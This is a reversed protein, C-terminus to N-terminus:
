PTAPLEIIWHTGKGLGTNLTAKGNFKKVRMRINNLGNGSRTHEDNFGIGDDKAEITTQEKDFSLQLSFHIAESYKAANNIMEKCILYAERRLLMDVQVAEAPKNVFLSYRTESDEFANTMFQQLRNTLHQVTDNTPNNSWVIDSMNDIMQRSTEEMKLALTQAAEPRTTIRKKLVSSMLSISSLTSGIDDHLEQSIRLREKEQASYIASLKELEQQQIRELSERQERAIGKLRAGMAASFFLIDLFIGIFIWGIDPVGLINVGKNNSIMSVIGCATYAISAVLILRLIGNIANLLFAFQIILSSIILTLRFVISLVQPIGHYKDQQTFYATFFFALAYVPLSWSLFYKWYLWLYRPLAKYHRFAMIGFVFYFYYHAAQLVEETSYYWRQTAGVDNLFYHNIVRYAIFGATVFLYLSYYLFLKEKQYLYLIFHYFCTALAAGGVVHLLFVYLAGNDEMMVSWLATQYGAKAKFIPFGKMSGYGM